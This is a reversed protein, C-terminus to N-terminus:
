SKRCSPKSRLLNGNGISLALGNRLKSANWSLMRCRCYTSTKRRKSDFYFQRANGTLTISFAKHRGTEAIDAQGCREVVLMFKRDFNDITLGSYRDVDNSNAKVFEGSEFM